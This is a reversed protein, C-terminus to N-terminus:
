AMKLEEILQNYRISNKFIKKYLMKDAEVVIASTEKITHHQFVGGRPLFDVEIRCPETNLVKTVLGKGYKDANFATRWQVIDGVKFDEM